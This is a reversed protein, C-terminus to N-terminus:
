DVDTYHRGEHRNMYEHPDVERWMEFSVHKRRYGEHTIM